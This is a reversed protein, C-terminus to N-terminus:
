VPYYAPWVLGDLVATHLFFAVAGVLALTHAWRPNRPEVWVLAAVLGGAGLAVLALVTRIGYWVAANPTDIMVFTLPMWLASPVLILVYLVNFVNFGLRTGIRSEKPDLRCILFYTFAFYGLMAALMGVGYLPRLSAPVGGWLAEGSGPNTVLGHAYSGLVATGGVLNIGLFRKRDRHM